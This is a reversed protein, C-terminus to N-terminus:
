NSEKKGTSPGEGPLLTINVNKRKKDVLLEIKKKNKKMM